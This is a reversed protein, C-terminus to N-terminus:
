NTLHSRLDRWIIERDNHSHPLETPFAARAWTCSREPASCAPRSDSQLTSSLCPAVQAAGFAVGSCDAPIQM